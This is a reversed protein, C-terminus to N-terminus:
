ETESKARRNTKRSPKIIELKPAGSKKHHIVLASGEPVSKRYILERKPETRRLYALAYLALGMYLERNDGERLGTLTRRIGEDRPDRAGLARDILKRTRRAM